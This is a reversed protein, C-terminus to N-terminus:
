SAAERAMRGVTPRWHRLQAQAAPELRQGKRAGIAARDGPQWRPRGEDYLWPYSCGDFLNLISKMLSGERKGVGMFFYLVFCCFGSPRGSDETGELLEPVGGVGFTVFPLGLASVEALAYPANDALSPMVVLMGEKGILGAAEDHPADYTIFTPFPWNACRQRLWAVSPMGEIVNEAGIFYVEFSANATISPPLREVADAFVKIGKREDMRGFFALRWVPKTQFSQRPAGGSPSQLVNPIIFADGRQKWGRQKYWDLRSPLFCYVPM